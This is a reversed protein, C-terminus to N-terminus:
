QVRRLCFLDGQDSGQEFVALVPDSPPSAIIQEMWKVAASALLCIDDMRAPFVPSWCGIREVAPKPLDKTEQQDRQLWPQLRSHFDEIPFGEGYAAFAYLRRAYLGISISLFLAPRMWEALDSVVQDSGTTDLIIRPELAMLASLTQGRVNKQYAMVKAELSSANLRAVVSAAKNYGIKFATLTHRVLNGLQLTEGDAICLKNVGGRVLLDAMMSGLAGAGIQLINSECLQPSLQGRVHRWREHESYVMAWKLKQTDPPSPHGIPMSFEEVRCAEWRLRRPSEGVREPAPYGVLLYAVQDPEVALIKLVDAIQSDLSPAHHQQCSARLEGWNAPLRWYPLDPAQELRVWVARVIVSTENLFAGWETNGLPLGPGLDRIARLAEDKTSFFRDAFFLLCSPNPHVLEVFGHTKGPEDILASGHRGVVITTEQGDWHRAPAEWDDGVRFLEQQSAREVWEATREVHWRLRAEVTYPESLGMRIHWDQTMIGLCLNGTRYPLNAEGEENWSQHPFTATIGNEKAPYVTINGWPYRAPVVIVWDTEAPVPSAEPVPRLLRFRLAWLRVSDLWQWDQLLRYGVVSELARRAQRLTEPIAIPSM